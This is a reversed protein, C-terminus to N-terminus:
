EIGMFKYIGSVIKDPSVEYTGNEIERKIREVKLKIDDYDVKSAEKAVSSIEVRDGKASESGKVGKRKELNVVYNVLKGIEVRNIM